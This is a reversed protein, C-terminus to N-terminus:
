RVHDLMAKGHNKIMTSIANVADSDKKQIATQLQMHLGQMHLDQMHAMMEASSHGAEMKAQSAYQGPLSTSGPLTGARPPLSSSHHGNAELGTGQNDFTRSKNSNPDVRPPTNGPIDVPQISPPTVKVLELAM